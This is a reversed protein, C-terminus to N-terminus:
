KVQMALILKSSIDNGKYSSLLIRCNYLRLFSQQYIKKEKKCNQM